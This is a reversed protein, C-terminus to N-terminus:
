SRGSMVKRIDRRSNIIALVNVTGDGDNIYYLIKYGSFHVQFVEVGSIVLSSKNRKPFYALKQCKNLAKEVIRNASVLDDYVEVIYDRIRVLDEFAEVSIHVDYKRM